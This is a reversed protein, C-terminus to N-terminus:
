RQLLRHFFAHAFAAPFHVVVLFGVHVDDNETSPATAGTAGADQRTRPLMIWFAGYSRANVCARLMTPMDSSMRRWSALRIRKPVTCATAPLRTCTLSPPKSVRGSGHSAVRAPVVLVHAGGSIP